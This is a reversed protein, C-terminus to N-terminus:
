SSSQHFYIKNPVLVIKLSLPLLKQTPYSTVGLWPIVFFYVSSDTCVSILFLQIPTEFQQHFVGPNLQIPEVSEYLSFSAFSGLFPSTTLFCSPLHHKLYLTSLSKLCFNPLYKAFGLGVFGLKASPM